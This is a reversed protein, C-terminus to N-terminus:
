GIKDRLLAIIEENGGEAAIEQLSKGRYDKGDTPAGKELLWKAIEPQKYSVAGVLANALDKGGTSGEYVAEVITLNGGIAAHFLLSIEHGGKENIRSPDEQLLRQFNAEDGMMAATVIILPAGQELLYEAVHRSGVHSAAQLPTELGGTEAGWDYVVNLYDPHEALLRKVTELDFHAAGVFERIPDSM